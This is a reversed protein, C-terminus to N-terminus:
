DPHGLTVCKGDYALAVTYVRQEGYKLTEQQKRAEADFIGPDIVFINLIFSNDLNM